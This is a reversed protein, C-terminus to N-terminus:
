PLVVRIGADFRQPPSGFGAIDEYDKDFLNRASASLTLGKAAQFQVSWDVLAYSPLTVRPAASTTQSERRGVWQYDGRANWRGRRWAIGAATKNRPRDLLALGETGNSMEVSKLATHSANLSWAAWHARAEVEQGQQLAEEVNELRFSAFNFTILDAIENRFYTWGLTLGAGDSGFAQEVGAERGRSTEPKLDPNGVFSFLGFLTPARFGRGESLRFTTGSPKVRVALAESHLTERDFRSHTEQRAGLSLSAKVAEDELVFTDQVYRGIQRSEAGSLNSPDPAGNTTQETRANDRADEYGVVLRQIDGVWEMRWDWRATNGDFDAFASDAPHAPDVPDHLARDHRNWGLTLRQNLRGDFHSAQTRWQTFLAKYRERRNVDDGGRGGATDSDFRSDLGRLFVETELEPSLAYGMRGALTGVEHGDKEENRYTGAADRGEERAMSWGRSEERAAAWSYHFGGASGRFGQAGRYTDLRGGSFSTDSQFRGEGRRTVINIVGGIAKSGYLTSHPGKLIEIREIQDVTLFEFPFIGPSSPDGADMGDILILTHEPDAGRLFVASNQQATGTRNVSVSAEARLVDIVRTEPRAEIEERTIVRIKQPLDRAPTRLHPAVVVLPPIETSARAWGASLCLTLFAAATKKV